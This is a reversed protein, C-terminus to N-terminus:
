TSLIFTTKLAKNISNVKVMFVYLSDCCSYSSKLQKQHANPLITISSIFYFSLPILDPTSIECCVSKACLLLLVGPSLSPCVSACCLLAIVRWPETVSATEDGVRCFTQSSLYAAARQPRHPCSPSATAPVPRSLFYNILPFIVVFGEM